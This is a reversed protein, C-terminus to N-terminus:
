HQTNAHCAPKEPPLRSWFSRSDPASTPQVDSGKDLLSCCRNQYASNVTSFASFTPGRLVPDRRSVGCACGFGTTTGVEPSQHQSLSNHQAPRLSGQEARDTAASPFTVRPSWVSPLLRGASPDTRPRPSRRCTAAAGAGAPRSLRARGNQESRPRNQLPRGLVSLERGRRPTVPQCVPPHQIPQHGFSVSAEGMRNKIVRQAQAHMAWSAAAPRTFLLLLYFCLFIHSELLHHRHHFEPQVEVFSALFPPLRRRCKRGLNGSVVPTL